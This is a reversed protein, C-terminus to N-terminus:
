FLRLLVQVLVAGVVLFILGNVRNKLDAFNQELNKLRQELIADFVSTPRVDVALGQRHRDGRLGQFLKGLQRELGGAPRQTEKREM